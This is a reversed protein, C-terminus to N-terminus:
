EEDGSPEKLYSRLEFVRHLFIDLPIWNDSWKTDSVKYHSRSQLEELRCRRLSEFGGSFGIYIRGEKILKPMKEILANFNPIKEYVVNRQGQLEKEARSIANELVALCYRIDESKKEMGSERFLQIIEGWTLVVIGTGAIRDGQVARLTLLGHKIQSARYALEGITLGLAEKQADIQKALDETAPDTFLKAEVVFILNSWRLFLDPVAVRGYERYKSKIRENYVGSDRLPDLESVVEFDQPLDRTANEGFVKTFLLKLGQFNNVMLLHGLMSATFYRESRAVKDFNLADMFPVDGKAVAISFLV